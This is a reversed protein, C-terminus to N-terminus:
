PISASWGHQCENTYTTASAMPPPFGAAALLIALFQFPINYNHLSKNSEQQHIMMAKKQLIRFLGKRKSDLLWPLPCNVVPYTDSQDYISAMRLLYSAVVM